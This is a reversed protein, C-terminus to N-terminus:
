SSSHTFESHSVGAAGGETQFCQTPYFMFLGIKLICSLYIEPTFKVFSVCSYGDTILYPWTGETRRM